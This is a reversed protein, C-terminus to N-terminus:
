FIDVIINKDFLPAESLKRGERREAERKRRRLKKTEPFIHFEDSREESVVDKKKRL